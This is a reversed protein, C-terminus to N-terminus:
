RGGGGGGGGEGRRRPAEGGGDEPGRRRGGGRDDPGEREPRPLREVQEPRLLKRLSEATTRDLDRRKRWLDGAPGDDIEDRRQRFVRDATITEEVEETAKALQDNLSSVERQYSDNLSIIGQKQTEDLDAFGKAATLERSSTSERYIRPFSARKIEREFQWQAAEPLLTQVQRAYTRNVERVRTSARRADNMMEQARARAADPDGGGFLEGMRSIGEDYVKNREILARDLEVEYQDLVPKVAAQTDAPLDQSEVIRILDVREGSMLGRQVTRERRRVREVIPWRQQQEPTLVAQVDTFFNREMEERKTRFEQFMGRMGQLATRDGSERAEERAGEVTERASAAAARYEENYGEFLARVTERQDKTLVLIADFRELDRSDVGPAFMDQGGQGGMGGRFGPGDGRGGQALAGGTLCGVVVISTLLLRGFAAGSRHM